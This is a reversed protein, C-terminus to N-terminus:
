GLAAYVLIGSIILLLAISRQKTIREHFFKVGFLAVFIYGAADLVVGLSIPIVRYAYVSFLTSALMMGYGVVVRWNFYEKLKNEYPIFASKKLLVQAASAVFVGALLVIAHILIGSKM